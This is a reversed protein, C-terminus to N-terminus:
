LPDHHYHGSVVRDLREFGQREVLQLARDVGSGPRGPKDCRTNSSVPPHSNGLDDCAGDLMRNFCRCKSLVNRCRSRTSVDPEVCGPWYVACQFFYFSRDAPPRQDAIEAAVKRMM